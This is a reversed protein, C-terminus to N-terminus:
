YRNIYGIFSFQIKIKGNPLNSLEYIGNNDAITGKNLDPIYITAGPLPLNNQDTIKGTLQIRHM